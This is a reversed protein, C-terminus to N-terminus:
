DDEPPAAVEVEWSGWRGTALDEVVVVVWLAGPPPEIVEERSWWDGTWDQDVLLEHDFTLTGGEGPPRDAFARTWRVPVRKPDPSQGGHGDLRVRTRLVGGAPGSRAGASASAPRPVFRADVVLEGSDAEGDLIRRVRARTVLEPTSSRVMAPTQITIRSNASTVTVARLKGDPPRSVQYTVRFREGLRRLRQPLEDATSILEGATVKALIQLPDQPTILWSGTAEDQKKGRGFLKGLAGGLDVTENPLDSEENRRDRFREFESDALWTADELTDYAVPVLVWGLAGIAEAAERTAAALPKPGEGVAAVGSLRRRYFLGPDLDYGDQIWLLARPGVGDDAALGSVLADLRRQIWLTEKAVAREALARRQEVAREGDLKAGERVVARRLASLRDAGAEELFVRSLAEAIQEGDSTALLLKRSDQDAVWIEVTGLKGLTAAQLALSHATARLTEPSTFPLDFYIVVRWPEQGEGVGLPAVSVVERRQEGELVVLDQPLLEDVPSGSFGRASVVLDIATVRAQDAFGQSWAAVPLWCLGWALALIIGANRRRISLHSSLFSCTSPTSYM